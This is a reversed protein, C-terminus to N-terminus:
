SDERREEKIVGGRRRYCTQSCYKGANKRNDARYTRAFERGCGM